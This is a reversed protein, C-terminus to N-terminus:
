RNAAKRAIREGQEVTSAYQHAWPARPKGTPWSVRIVMVGDPETPNGFIFRATLRVGREFHALPVCVITVGNLTWSGADPLELAEALTPFTPLTVTEVNATSM